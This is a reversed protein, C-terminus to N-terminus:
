FLHKRIHGSATHGVRKWDYMKIHNIIMTRDFRMTKVKELLEALHAPMAEKGYLLGFSSDNILDNFYGIKPAIVPLGFSLSFMAIGSTLVSKYKYPLVMVDAANLYVQVDEDEIRRNVIIINGRIPAVQAIKKKVTSLYSQDPFQGVLLLSDRPGASIAFADVLDELGKYPNAKGFSLYVFDSESIGLMGRSEKFSRDNPINGIYNGHDIVRIRTLRALPFEALLVKKATKGHVFILSSFLIIVLRSFYDLRGVKIVCHPYLNHATWIIKKGLIKVFILFLVFKAVPRWVNRGYFFSPWHFHLARFRKRNRYIWRFGLEGEVAPIGCEELAGYFQNCYQDYRPYACLCPLSTTRRNRRAM